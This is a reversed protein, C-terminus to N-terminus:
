QKVTKDSALGTLSNSFFLGILSRFVLISTSYTLGFALINVSTGYDKFLYIMAAQATGFGCPAIPLSVILLIIPVYAILPVLPISMHFAQLAFHFFAIFISYFVIRWFNLLGYSKWPAEPFVKIINLEKFKGIWGRSPLVKLAQIFIIDFIIIAFCVWLFNQLVSNLPSFLLLGFICMIVLSQQNIANFIVMLGTSRMVPIGLDRKLYYILAGLGLSYDINAILYTGGRISLANRFPLHYNFQKLLAVLNQTDMLFTIAIFALFCPIYLSLNAHTLAVLCQRYDIHWFLYTLIGGAVIFPLIRKWLPSRQALPLTGTEEPPNIPLAQMTTSDSMMTQPSEMEKM